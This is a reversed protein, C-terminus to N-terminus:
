LGIWELPKKISTASILLKIHKWYEFGTVSIQLKEGTM